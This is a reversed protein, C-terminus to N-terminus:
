FDTKWLEEYAHRMSLIDDGYIIVYDILNVSLNKLVYMIRRTEAIDASSPLAAGEPHIRILLINSCGMTVARSALYSIDFQPAVTKDNTIVTENMFDLNKDLYLIHGSENLLAPLNKNCYEVVKEFSNLRISCIQKKFFMQAFDRIFCIHTAASDGIGDVSQLKDFSATMVGFLSGFADVLRHAIVNTNQRAFISYLFIELVEHEDFEGMGGLLYKKLMRSRHGEHCNDKKQEAM